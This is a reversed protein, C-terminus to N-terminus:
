VILKKDTQEDIWVLTKTILNVLGEAVERGEPTEAKAAIELTLEAIGTCGRRILARDICKLRDM